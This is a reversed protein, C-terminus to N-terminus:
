DDGERKQRERRRHWWVVFRRRWRRAFPLDYSLVLLGLPLMWFGVIPLFGLLGGIVLMIGLGIRLFPSRPLAIERGGLKVRHAWTSRDKERREREPQEKQGEEATM